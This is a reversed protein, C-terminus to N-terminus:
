AHTGTSWDQDFALGFVNAKTLPTRGGVIEAKNEHISGFSM